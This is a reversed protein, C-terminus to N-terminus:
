YPACIPNGHNFLIRECANWKNGYLDYYLIYNNNKKSYSTNSKLKIQILHLNMNDNYKLWYPIMDSSGVILNIPTNKLYFDVNFIPKINKIKNNMEDKWKTIWYYPNNPDNKINCIEDHDRYELKYDSLLLDIVPSNIDHERIYEILMLRSDINNVM